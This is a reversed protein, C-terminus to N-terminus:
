GSVRWMKVAMPEMVSEPGFGECQADCTLVTGDVDDQYGFM